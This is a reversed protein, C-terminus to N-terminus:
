KGETTLDLDPEYRLWLDCTRPTPPEADAVGRKNNTTKVRFGKDKRLAKIGNIRIATALSTVDGEFIRYWQGPDSRLQEAIADWDYRGRTPRSEPPTGAMMEAGGVVKPAAAKAAKRTM